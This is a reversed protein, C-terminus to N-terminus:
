PQSAYDKAGFQVKNMGRPSSYDYGLPVAALPPACGKAGFQVKNMGLLSSYDYGLPVAVLPPM